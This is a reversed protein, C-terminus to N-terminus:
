LVASGKVGARVTKGGTPAVAVSTGPSRKSSCPDFVRGSRHSLEMTRNANEVAVSDRTLEFVFELEGHLRPAESLTGDVAVECLRAAIRSLREAGAVAASGKLGHAVRGVAAADGADIARALEGITAGSLELFRALLRARAEDDDGFVDALRSADM